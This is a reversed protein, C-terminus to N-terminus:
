DRLVVNLLSSNVRLDGDYHIFGLKRFKNMFSNIRSRTTGVVGALTAQSIKASVPKLADDKGFNALLLLTRALRKESSNFLQDVLDEQIRSARTLLHAVFMEAFMPEAHLVRIMETKEVRMVETETLARATALRVAEGNLCGEGLFEDAGLIAVVAQKEQKSTVVLKVKGKRIYFVADAAQGQSFIMEDKHYDILRRGGNATALFRMPDFKHRKRAKRPLGRRMWNATLVVVLNLGYNSAPL